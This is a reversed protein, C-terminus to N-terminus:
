KKQPNRRRPKAPGKKKREEASTDIVARVIGSYGTCRCINGKLAERVMGESLPTSGSLIDLSVMLMGPTCFGCQTADNELFAKQIPHLDGGDALGEATRVARGDAQVAFMLCSKVAQGDLLVTCCGCRGEDCGEHVSTYGLDRLLDVLLLRPEVDAMHDRGNVTLAIEM